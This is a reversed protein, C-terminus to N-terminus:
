PDLVEVLAPSLLTQYGAEFNTDRSSPMWLLPMMGVHGHLLADFAVILARGNPSAVIVVADVFRDRDDSPIHLRCAEGVRWGRPGPQGEDDAM